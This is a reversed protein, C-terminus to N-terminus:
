QRKGRILSEPHAELYDALDRLSRSARGLERITALTELMLADDQDLRQQILQLTTQLESLTVNAQAITIDAQALTEDTFNGAVREISGRATALTETAARATDAIEGNILSNFDVIAADGDALVDPLLELVKAINPDRLIEEAAQLTSGLRAVVEEIPLESLTALAEDLHSDLTPLEPYQDRSGGLRREPTDPHFDLAVYLQGTLLSQSKLSARIGNRLLLPLLTYEGEEVRANVLTEPLFELTIRPTMSGSNPDYIGDIALVEGCPIGRFKVPAGINLGTVSQQFYAVFQRKPTFYEESSFLVAALVALVVGGIIFVGILKPNSEKM